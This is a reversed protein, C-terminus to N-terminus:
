KKLDAPCVLDDIIKGDMLRYFVMACTTPQGHSQWTARIAVKDGEAIIDDIVVEWTPDEKHTNEIAQKVFEKGQGIIAWPRDTGARISYDEHLLEDVWEPKNESWAQNYQKVITKNQETSM